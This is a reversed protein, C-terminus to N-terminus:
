IRWRQSDLQGGGFSQCVKQAIKDDKNAWCYLIGKLSMMSSDPNFYYVIAIRSGKQAEMKAVAIQKCYWNKPCGSEDFSLDLHDMSNAFNGNVMYYFNQAEAMSRIFNIVSVTEARLTAVKYQPLAITALIGIILVVVLLEILTFGKPPYKSLKLM